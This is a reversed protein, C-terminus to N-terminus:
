QQCSLDGNEETIIMPM